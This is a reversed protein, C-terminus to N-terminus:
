SPLGLHRALNGYLRRRATISALLRQLRPSKRRSLWWIAALAHMRVDLYRHPLGLAEHTLRPNNFRYHLVRGSDCYNLWRRGTEPLAALFEEYAAVPTLSPLSGAADERVFFANVYYSVLRYGREVATDYFLGLPQGITNAAVERPVPTRSEPDHGPVVEVCIVRPRIQLSEFVEYDPGDIDIVLLDLEPAGADALISELRNTESDVMARVPVVRPNSANNRRLEAFKHPDAEILVANWGADVLRRTNSHHMGDWAGFECCWRTTEGTARFITEIIGDEGFQSFVNHRHELLSL